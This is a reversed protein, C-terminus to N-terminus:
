IPEAKGRAYVGQWNRRDYIVLDPLEQNEELKFRERIRASPQVIEFDDDLLLKTLATSYIGRVRARAM